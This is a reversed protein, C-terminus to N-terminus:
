SFSESNVIDFEAYVGVAVTVVIVVVFATMSFSAVLNAMRTHM